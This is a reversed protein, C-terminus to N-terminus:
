LSPSDTGFDVPAKEKAKGDITEPDRNVCIFSTRLQDSPSSMIYGEYEVNWNPPCTRRGPIMIQFM